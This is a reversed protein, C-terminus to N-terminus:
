PWNPEINDTGTNTIFDGHTPNQTVTWGSMDHGTYASASYFMYGMNTVNATKAGWSLDGNFASAWGFMRYMSTVASVDWNTLNQNFGIAHIFMEHMNTVSSVDWEGINGNFNDTGNFMSDMNTVSSVNWGGIDRNFERATAFMYQMDTVASVNWNDINGNFKYAGSFLRNMDTIHSVDWNGLDGNFLNTQGFMESMDTVQSLDPADVANEVLSDCDIFAGAMSKWEISGWNEISAIINRYTGAGKFYISPFTGWIKVTYTGAVTYSHTADDTVASDKTGDGWDVNYNYTYNSNTPIAITDGDNAITWTTVFRDEFVTLTYSDSVSNYNDDGTNEATIETTGLGLITVEGTSSDVTAVETNSSSYTTTGTGEVGTVAKVFSIETIGKSLDAGASFSAQSMIGGGASLSTQLVNEGPMKCAFFGVTMAFIALATLLAKRKM